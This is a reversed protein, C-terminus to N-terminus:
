NDNQVLEMQELKSVASQLAPYESGHINKMIQIGKKLLESSSPLDGLLEYVESLDMMGIALEETEGFYRHMISLANSFTSLANKFEGMIRYLGVLNILVTVYESVSEFDGQEFAEVSKLYAAESEAYRGTIKYLGALENYLAAFNFCKEDTQEIADLVISEITQYDGSSYLDDLKEQLELM